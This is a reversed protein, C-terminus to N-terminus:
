KRSGRSMPKKAAGIGAYRRYEGGKKTSRNESAARRQLCPKFLLSDDTKKAKLDLKGISSIITLSLM